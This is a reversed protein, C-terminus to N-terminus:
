FKERSSTLGSQPAQRQMPPYKEGKLLTDESLSLIMSISDAEALSPVKGDNNENHKRDEEDERSMLRYTTM